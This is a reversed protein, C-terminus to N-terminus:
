IIFIFVYPCYYTRELSIMLKFCVQPSFCVQPCDRFSASLKPTLIKEQSGEALQHTSNSGWIYVDCTDLVSSTTSTSSTSILSTYSSGSTPVSQDSPKTLPIHLNSLSFDEALHYLKLLTFVSM